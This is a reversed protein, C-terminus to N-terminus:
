ELQSKIIATKGQITNGLQSNAYIFIYNRFILKTDRQSRSNNKKKQLKLYCKGINNSSTLNFLSFISRNSM